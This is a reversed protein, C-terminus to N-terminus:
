FAHAVCSLLHVLYHFCSNLTDVMWDFWLRWNTVGTILLNTSSRNTLIREAPACETKSMTWTICATSCKTFNNLYPCQPTLVQTRQFENLQTSLVICRSLLWGPEFGSQQPGDCWRMWPFLRFCGDLADTDSFIVSGIYLTNNYLVVTGSAM